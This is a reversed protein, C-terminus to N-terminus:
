DWISAEKQISAVLATNTVMGGGGLDAPDFLSQVLEEATPYPDAPPSPVSVRAAAGLGSSQVAKEIRTQLGQITTQAEFLEALVAEHEELSVPVEPFPQLGAHIVSSAGPPLPPGGGARQRPASVARGMRRDVEQDTRLRAIERELLKNRRQITQLEDEGPLFSVVSSAVSSSRERQV